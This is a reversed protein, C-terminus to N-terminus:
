RETEQKGILGKFEYNVQRDTDIWPTEWQKGVQGETRDSSWKEEKQGPLQRQYLTIWFM